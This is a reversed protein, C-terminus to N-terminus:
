GRRPSCGGNGCCRGPAVDGVIGDVYLYGAPVEGAFDVRDGRVEVVDGDEALLVGDPPVGMEVALRAHHMLHRFSGTSRSSLGRGPWRFLSAEARRADRAGLRPGACAWFAGGRGGFPLARRYSQGRKVRQGTDGHSSLVVLDGAGVKVWRNDGAAMLSLASM